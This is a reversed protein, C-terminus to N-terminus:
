LGSKLKSNQGQRANARGDPVRDRGRRQRDLVPPPSLRSEGTLAMALGSIVSARDAGMDVCKAAAAFLARFVTAGEGSGLIAPKNAHPTRDFVTFEACYERQSWVSWESSRVSGPAYDCGRLTPNKPRTDGQLAQVTM